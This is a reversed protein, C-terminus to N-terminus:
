DLGFSNWTISGTWSTWDIGPTELGIWDLGYQGYPQGAHQFVGETTRSDYLYNLYGPGSKSISTTYMRIAPYSCLHSRSFNLFLGLSRSEFVQGPDQPYKRPTLIACAMPLPLLSDCLGPYTWFGHINTRSSFAM